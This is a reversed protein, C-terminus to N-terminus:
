PRDRPSTASCRFCGMRARCTGCRWSSPPRISGVPCPRALPFMARMHLRISEFFLDRLEAAADEFSCDVRPSADLDLLAPRIPLQTISRCRWCAPAPYSDVEAFLTRDGHGTVGFRLYQFLRDPEVRRSVGPLGLLPSIDSSFAFGGDFDVWYLPKIGVFDRALLLKRAAVDLIAFAFMGVLRDLATTGNRTPM